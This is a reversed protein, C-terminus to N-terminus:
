FRSVREVFELNSNVVIRGKYCEIGSLKTILDTYNKAKVEFIFDENERDTFSLILGNVSKALDCEFGKVAIYNGNFENRAKNEALVRKIEKKLGLVQSLNTRLM